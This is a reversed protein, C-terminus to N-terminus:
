MAFTALEFRAPGVLPKMVDGKQRPVHGEGVPNGFDLFFDRAGLVVLHGNSM